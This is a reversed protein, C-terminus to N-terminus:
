KGTSGFNGDARKTNGVVGEEINATVVPTFKLQAIKDGKQYIKERFIKANHRIDVPFSQHFLFHERHDRQSNKGPRDPLFPRSSGHHPSRCARRCYCGVGRQQWCWPPLDASVHTKLVFPGATRSEHDDCEDM